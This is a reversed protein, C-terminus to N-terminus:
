RLGDMTLSGMEEMVFKTSSTPPTGAVKDTCEVVDDKRDDCGVTGCTNCVKEKDFVKLHSM